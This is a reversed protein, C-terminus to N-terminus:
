QSHRQHNSQMSQQSHPLRQRTSGNTSKPSRSRSYRSNLSTRSTPTQRHSLRSSSAHSNDQNSNHTGRSPSIHTGQNLSTRGHLPRFIPINTIDQLTSMYTGRSHPTSM